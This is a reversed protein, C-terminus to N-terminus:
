KGGIPMYGSARAADVDSVHILRTEKGNSVYVTGKAPPAAIATGSEGQQGHPATAAAIYADIIEPKFGRNKLTTRIKNDAREELTRIKSYTQGSFDVALPDDPVMKALMEFDKDSPTGLGSMGKVALTTAVAYSKGDAVAQRDLVESGHEDRLARLKALNFKMDQYNDLATKIQKADEVTDARGLGPVFKSKEENAIRNRREEFALADGASMPAQDKKAPLLGAPMPANTPVFINKKQAPDYAETYSYKEGKEEKPRRAEEAKATYYDTEAATKGSDAELKKRAADSNAKYDDFKAMDMKLGYIGQAIMLGKGITDLIQETNGRRQPPQMVAVTM